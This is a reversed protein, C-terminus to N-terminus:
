TLITSAFWNSFISLLIFVILYISITLKNTKRTQLKVFATFDRITGKEEDSKDRNKAWKEDADKKWHYVMMGKPLEHGVYDEWIDRELPRNKHSQFNSVALETLVPVATLFAVRTLPVKGRSVDGYMMREISDPLARAENLRFDFYEVENHGPHLIWDAPTHRTVFASNKQDDRFRLRYYIASDDKLQEALSSITDSNITLLTGSEEEEVLLESHDIGDKRLSFTHVNCYVTEDIKLSIHRPSADIHTTPVLAENFIGQAINESQFHQSCDELDIRKLKMPLYIKVSNIQKANRLLVGVEAFDQIKSKGKGKPSVRWYNFHIEASSEHDIEKPIIWAAM